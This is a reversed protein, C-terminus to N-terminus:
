VMAEVVAPEFGARILTHMGCLADGAKHTLALVGIQLFGAPRHDTVLGLWFRMRGYLDDDLLRLLHSADEVTIEVSAEAAPKDWREATAVLHTGAHQALVV